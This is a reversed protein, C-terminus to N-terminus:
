DLVQLFDVDFAKEKIKKLLEDAPDSAPQVISVTSSSSCKDTSSGSASM